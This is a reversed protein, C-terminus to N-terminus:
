TTGCSKCAYVFQLTWVFRPRSLVNNLPLLVALTLSDNQLCYILSLTSRLATRYEHDSRRHYGLILYHVHGSRGQCLGGPRRQIPSRVSLKAHPRRSLAQQENLNYSMSNGATREGSTVLLFRINNLFLCVFSIVYICLCGIKLYDLLFKYKFSKAQKLRRM